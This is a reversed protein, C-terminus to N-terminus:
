TPPLANLRDLALGAFRKGDADGHQLLAVLPGIADAAVIPGRHAGDNAIRALAGASHAKGRADGHQLLAVLPGIANAAVIAGRHAGDVTLNALAFASNAKGRADGHQLLAILPGIANPQLSEVEFIARGDRSVCGGEDGRRRPAAAGCAADIM